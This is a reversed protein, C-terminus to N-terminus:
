SRALPAAAVNDPMANHQENAVRAVVEAGFGAFADFWELSMAPLALRVTLFGILLALAINTLTVWHASRWPVPSISLALLILGLATHPHTTPLGAFWQSSAHFGFACICLVLLGIGGGLWAGVFRARLFSPVKRTKPM